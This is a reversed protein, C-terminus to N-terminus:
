RLMKCTLISTLTPMLNNRILTECKINEPLKWQSKLSLLYTSWSIRSPFSFIPSFRLNNVTKAKSWCLHYIYLLFFTLSSIFFHYPVFTYLNFCLCFLHQVSPHTCITNEYLYIRKKLFHLRPNLRLTEKDIELIM